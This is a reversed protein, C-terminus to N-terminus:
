PEELKVRLNKHAANLSAAVTGPAVDLAAAITAYDLDAYYRLFLALRQREPLRRIADVLPGEDVDIEQGREVPDVRAFRSRRRHEDIAQRVLIRWVWGAPSGRGDYSSLSRIAVAFAEQVTEKAAEVDGLIASATRVFAPLRERYITELESLSGRRGVM